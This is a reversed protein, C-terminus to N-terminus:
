NRTIKRDASLITWAGERNLETLWNVDTVKPGFRERLHVVEHQGVFLSALARALPPPLNEDM